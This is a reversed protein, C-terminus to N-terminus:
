TTDAPPGALRRSHGRLEALLRGDADRTVSVDYIGSRGVVAREVATATVAEGAFAPALFEISCSRGVAPHGHSNCAMAFAIDAIAFLAAGHASGHGNLMAGRITMHATVAGPAVSSVTVGLARAATDGALLERVADEAITQPTRDRM